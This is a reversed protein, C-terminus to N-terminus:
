ISTGRVSHKCSFGIRLWGFTRLKGCRIRYTGELEDSCGIESLDVSTQDSKGPISSRIVATNIDGREGGFQHGERPAMKMHM